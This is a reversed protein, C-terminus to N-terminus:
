PTFMGVWSQGGVSGFDGSTGLGHNTFAGAAIAEGSGGNLDYVEIGTAGDPTPPQTLSWLVSGTPGVREAVFGTPDNSGAPQGRTGHIWLAEDNPLIVVGARAPAYSTMAVNREFMLQGTPSVRRLIVAATTGSTTILDGGSYVAMVLPAGQAVDPITGLNAGTASFKTASVSGATGQTALYFVGTADTTLSRAGSGTVTANWHKSPAWAEIASMASKTGPTAYMNNAGLALVRAFHNVEINPTPSAYVEHNFYRGAPYGNADLIDIRQRAFNGYTPFSVAVGGDLTAQLVGSIPYAWAVKGSADLKMTWAADSGYAITSVFLEGNPGRASARLPGMDFVSAWSLKPDFTWQVNVEASAATPFSCQNTGTCAGTIASHGRPSFVTIQIEPTPSYQSPLPVTCTGACVALTRQTFPSLDRVSVLAGAPAGNMNLTLQGPQMPAFSAALERAATSRPVFCTPSSGCTADTWGVFVYGPAPAATLTLGGLFHGTCDANSCTVDPSDATVTGAIPGSFDGVEVRTYTRALVPVVTDPLGGPSPHITLTTTRDGSYTPLFGVYGVCEDGPAVSSCGGSSFMQPFGSAKMEGAVQFDFSLTTGGTNKVHVMVSGSRGIDARVELMSEVVIYSPPGVPADLPADVLADLPADVPADLPADVPADLPADVPADQLADVESDTPTDSPADALPVDFPPPLADGNAASDGDCGGCLGVICV